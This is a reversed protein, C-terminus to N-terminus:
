RAKCNLAIQMVVEIYMKVVIFWKHHYKLPCTLTPFIGQTSCLNENQQYTSGSKVLSSSTSKFIHVKSANAIFELVVQIRVLPIFEDRCVKTCCLNPGSRYNVHFTRSKEIFIDQQIARDRVYIRVCLPLLKTNGTTYHLADNRIQFLLYVTHIVIAGWNNYWFFLSLFFQNIFTQFIVCKKTEFLFQIKVCYFAYPQVKQTDCVDRRNM